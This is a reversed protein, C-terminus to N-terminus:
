LLFVEFGGDHAVGKGTVQRFMEACHAYGGIAFRFGVEDKREKAAKALDLLYQLYDLMKKETESM